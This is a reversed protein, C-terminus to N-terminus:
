PAVGTRFHDAGTRAPAPHDPEPHELGTLDLESLALETLALHGSFGGPTRSQRRASTTVPAATSWAISMGAAEARHVLEVDEHVPLPAFGGLDRYTRASIGINAGHIHRHDSGSRYDELYRVRTGRSWESWDTVEVLGAVVDAGDLACAVQDTLWTAPVRSDADTTAYWREGSSPTFPALSDFGVARAAGVNRADSRVIRARGCAVAESADTCTDLVVTVTVPVPTLAACAELSDLCGPLLDQEDHVPIVVDIGVFRM